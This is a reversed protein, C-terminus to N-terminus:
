QPLAIKLEGFQVTKEAINRRIPGITRYLIARHSNQEEEHLRQLDCKAFVPLSM